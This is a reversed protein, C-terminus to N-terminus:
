DYILEEECTAEPTFLFASEFAAKRQGYDRLYNGDTVSALENMVASRNRREDKGLQKSLQKRKTMDVINRAARQAFKIEKFEKLLQELKENM